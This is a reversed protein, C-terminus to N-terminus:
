INRLQCSAKRIDLYRYAEALHPHIPYHIIAGIEKANLYDILRDREECRYCVPHWVCTAGEALTPLQIKENKIEHSYREAIKVKEDTLEQM